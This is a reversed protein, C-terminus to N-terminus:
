ARLFREAPRASYERTAALGEPWPNNFRAVLKKRWYTPTFHHSSQYERCLHSADSFGCRRAIEELRLNTRSMLDQAKELRVRQFASKPSASRVRWFLRRLHSTSTHVARAVEKVSPHRSLNEGYWALANEVRFTLFDPLAPDQAVDSDGLMLAALDNLRGQFHLHSLAHPRLYHPELDAAIRELAALEEAGLKRALWGKKRVIADLPYPVTGFHMVIRRFKHRHDDVWAHSCEPAFVWVTNEELPPNANDDFVPACRGRTLAYFEWNTRTNCRIPYKLRISGNAFYRLV